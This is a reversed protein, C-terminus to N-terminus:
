EARSRTARLRKLMEKAIKPAALNGDFATVKGSMVLVSTGPDSAAFTFTFTFLPRDLEILLDALARDKVIVLGMAQFEPRKRLENEVVERSLFMSKSWVFLARAARVVEGADTRSPNVVTSRTARARAIIVGGPAHHGLQLERALDAFGKDWADRKLGGGAVLLQGYGLSMLRASRRVRSQFEGAELGAEAAAQAVSLEAQFRRSLAGVPEAAADAGARSGAREVTRRFQEGDKEVLQDLTEQPPYLALAKERDFAAATATKVVPLVDDKFSKM